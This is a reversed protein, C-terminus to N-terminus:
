GRSRRGWGLPAGSPPTCGARHMASSAECSPDMDTARLAQAPEWPCPVTALTTVDRLCGSFPGLLRAWPFAQIRWLTGAIAALGRGGIGGVGKEGLNPSFPSCFKTGPSSLRAAFSGRETVPANGERPAQTAGRKGSDRPFPAPPIPPLAERLPFFGCSTSRAVRSVHGISLM